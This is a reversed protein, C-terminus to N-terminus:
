GARRHFVIDNPQLNLKYFKNVIIMDHSADASEPIGSINICSLNNIRQFNQMQKQMTTVQMQLKDIKGSNASVDENIKAFKVENNLKFTELQKSQNDALHELKSFMAMLDRKLNDFDSTVVPKSSAKSSVCSLCKWQFSNLNKSIEAYM